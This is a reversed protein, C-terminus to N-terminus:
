QAPFTVRFRSGDPVIGQLTIMKSDQKLAAIVQENNNVGKGNISTIVTGKPMDYMDFIKGPTVATVVVGTSVGFKKKTAEPLPSFTAGLNKVVAATAPTSENATKNAEDGKLTVNFDKM